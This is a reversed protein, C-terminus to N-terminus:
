MPAWPMGRTLVMEAYTAGRNAEANQHADGSALVRQLPFARLFTQEAYQSAAALVEELDAIADGSTGGAVAERSTAFALHQLRRLDEGTAGIEAASALASVIWPCAM